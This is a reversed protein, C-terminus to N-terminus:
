RQGRSGAGSASGQGATTAALTRTRTRPSPSPTPARPRPRRVLEGGASLGLGAPALTAEYARLASDRAASALAHPLGTSLRLPVFSAGVVGSDPEVRVTLVGSARTSPSDSPFVFNGLSYAVLSRGNWEMGQLVHPHHGIVMTAGSQLMARALAVDEPRPQASREVGWHMLVVLVDVRPRLRDIAGLVRGTTYGSAVGARNKRAAWTREPLVRSFSLFGIRVGRVEVIVPAYAQAETAGAGVPIAGRARVNALTELLADRGYDLSHNNALSFIDLGAARARDLYTADTRFTYRKQRARTGSGAVATELNAVAIDARALADRVGTWADPAGAAAAFAANSLALARELKRSGRAERSPPGPFRIDGAFALTVVGPVRRAPPVVARSPSGTRADPHVAAAAPPRAPSRAPRADRRAGPWAIVVAIGLTALFGVGFAGAAQWGRSARRRRRGRPDHM